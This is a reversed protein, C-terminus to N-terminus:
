RKFPLVSLYYASIEAYTLIDNGEVDNERRGTVSAILEDAYRYAHSWLSGAFVTILLIITVIKKEMSNEM